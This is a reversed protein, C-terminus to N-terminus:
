WQRRQQAVVTFLFTVVVISDDGQKNRQLLVWFFFANVVNDGDGEKNRQLLVFLLLHRRNGEKSHPLMFFSPSSLM